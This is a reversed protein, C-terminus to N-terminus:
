KFSKVNHLNFLKILALKFKVWIFQMLYDLLKLKEMPFRNSILIRRRFLKSGFIRLEEVGTSFIWFFLMKFSMLWLKNGMLKLQLFKAWHFVTEQYYMLSEWKHTSLKTASNLFSCSLINKEWKTSTKVYKPM